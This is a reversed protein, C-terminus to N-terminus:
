FIEDVEFVEGNGPFIQAGIHRIKGNHKVNLLTYRHELTGWKRLIGWKVLTYKHGM